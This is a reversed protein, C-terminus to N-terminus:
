RRTTFNFENVLARRTEKTLGLTVLKRRCGTGTCIPLLLKCYGKFRFGSCIM